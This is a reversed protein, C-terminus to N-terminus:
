LDLVVRYFRQAAPSTSDTATGTASIATINTLTSWNTQTLNTIYQVQYNQGAAAPWTLTIVGHAAVVTQINPAPVLSLEFITGYGLNGGYATTGYFHGNTAQMISTADYGGPSGPFSYLALLTGNTTLEFVTGQNYAGGASTTGFFNGDKAQMLFTPTFGSNTNFVALTKLAGGPTLQFVTGYDMTSGAAIGYFNGDQGPILGVPSYSNTGGFSDLSTFTGNSALEFVTGVFGSGGAETCGYFNGNTTLVLPMTAYSGNAGSFFAPNTIIHNTGLSFIVGNGNNYTNQTLNMGGYRSTGYFMGNSTQVLGNPSSGNTGSFAALVNITNSSTLQFITGFGYGNAELNTNGGLLATGYFNGDSAQIVGSNPQAGNTFNLSVLSNLVHNSTLQFVTGSNYLGGYPTTGYFNGDKAQILPATPSFGNTLNFSVLNSFVVVGQASPSTVGLVACGAMLPLWLRCRQALQASVPFFQHNKPMANLKTM